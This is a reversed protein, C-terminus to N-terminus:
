FETIDNGYVKQKKGEAVRKPSLADDQPKVYDNKNYNEVTECKGSVPNYVPSKPFRDASASFPMKSLVVFGCNMYGGILRSLFACSTVFMDGEDTIFQIQKKSGSLKAVAM